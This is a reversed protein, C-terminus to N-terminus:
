TKFRFTEKTICELLLERLRHIQMCLASYGKGSKTSMERISFGQVYRAELLNRTNEPLRELCHQLSQLRHHVDEHADWSESKHDLMAELEEGVGVAEERHKRLFNRLHNRAIGRLWIAVPAEGRFERRNIYATVFVDQALDEASAWDRLRSRFYGQIMPLHTRVLDEFSDADLGAVGNKTVKGSVSLSIVESGSSHL